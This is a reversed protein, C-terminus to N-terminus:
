NSEAEISARHIRDIELDFLITDLERHKRLIEFAKEFDKEQEYYGAIRRLREACLAPSVGKKLAELFANEASIPDRLKIHLEGIM